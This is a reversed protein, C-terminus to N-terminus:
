QQCRRLFPSLNLTNYANIPSVNNAGQLAPLGLQLPPPESSVHLFQCKAGKMCEGRGFFKCPKPELPRRHPNVDCGKSVHTIHGSSYRAGNFLAAFPNTHVKVDSTIHSFTCAAGKTCNGQEFFKCPGFPGLGLTVVSRQNLAPDGKPLHLQRCQSGFRCSGKQYHVCVVNLSPASLPIACDQQHSYLCTTGRVCNNQLYYKCVPAPANDMPSM